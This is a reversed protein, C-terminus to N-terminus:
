MLGRLRSYEIRQDVSTRWNAFEELTPADGKGTQYNLMKVVFDCYLQDMVTLAAQERFIADRLSELSSNQRM